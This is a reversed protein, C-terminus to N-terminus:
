PKAFYLLHPTIENGFEIIGISYYKNRRKDTPSGPNFFLTNDHYRCYPIHSHGFIVCNLSTDAFSKKVRDITKGSKGHGHVVGVRYSGVEIIKKLGLMKQVNCTDVNGAVATVPALTELQYIVDMNLLDGAHIIHDVKAFVEFVISPLCAARKPIHTDSLIGVKM